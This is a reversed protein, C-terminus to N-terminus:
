HEQIPAMSNMLEEYRDAFGSKSATPIACTSHIPFGLQGHYISKSGHAQCAGDSM